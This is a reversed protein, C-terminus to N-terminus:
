LGRRMAAVSDKDGERAIRKVSSRVTKIRKRCGRSAVPRYEAIAEQVAAILRSSSSVRMTPKRLAKEIKELVEPDPLATGELVRDIVSVDLGSMLSLKRTSIRKRDMKTLLRLAIEGAEEIEAMNAQRELAEERWPSPVPSTLAM